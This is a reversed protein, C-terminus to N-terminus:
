SLQLLLPLPIVVSCPRLRDCLPILDTVGSDVALDVAFHVASDLDSDVTFEVNLDVAFYVAM